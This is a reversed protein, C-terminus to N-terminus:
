SWWGGPPRQSIRPALITRTIVPAPMDPTLGAPFPFTQFTTTPTYRPDNGVGLWTGLRLSWSRTFGATCSASRRITRRPCNCDIPQQDPCIRAFRLWSSCATSPSANAYHHVPDPRGAGAADNPIHGSRTAVLLRAVLSAGAAALRIRQLMQYSVNGRGM